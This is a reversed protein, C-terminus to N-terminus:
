QVTASFIVSPIYFSSDVSREHVSDGQAPGTWNRIWDMLALGSYETVVNPMSFFGIVLERLFFFSFFQEAGNVV